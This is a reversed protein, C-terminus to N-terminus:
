AMKSIGPHTPTLWPRRTQPNLQMSTLTDSGMSSALFHTTFLNIMDKLMRPLWHPALIARMFDILLLALMQGNGDLQGNTMLTPKKLVFLCLLMSWPEEVSYAVLWILPRVAISPLTLPPPSTTPCPHFMMNRSAQTGASLPSEEQQLLLLVM